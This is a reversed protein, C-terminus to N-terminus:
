RGNGWRQLLGQGTLSAALLAGFVLLGPPLILWWPDLAIIDLASELLSGWSVQPPQVGLGLFSLASLAFISDGIMFTGNVVLVPAMVRVLHMRAIYFRGGGLQEAALVFDRGRQARTENRVLRALGPWSILGLLLILSTNNLTVLSAFFILIVLSPLALIADLLRMMVRDAWAPGLGATLGYAIGVVFAVAAAPLAVVLTAFGGSLLLALEDRGLEDTGLPFAWSPAQLAHDPHIAFPDPPYLFPAVFGIFLILGAIALGAVLTSRQTVWAVWRGLPAAPLGQAPIIQESM